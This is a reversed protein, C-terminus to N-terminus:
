AVEGVPRAMREVQARIAAGDVLKLQVQAFRIQGAVEKPDYGPYEAAVYATLEEEYRDRARGRGGKPPRPPQPKSSTESVEEHRPLSDGLPHDEALYTPTNGDGLEGCPSETCPSERCPSQRAAERVSEPYGRVRRRDDPATLADADPMEGRDGLPALVIYDTTRSGDQRRRRFRAILGQGEIEKLQRTVTAPDCEARQAIRERALFTVGESHAAESVVLLVAKGALSGVEIDRAWKCAQWSM